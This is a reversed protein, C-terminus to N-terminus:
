IATCTRKYPHSVQYRVNLSYRYKLARYQDGLNYTSVLSEISCVTEVDPTFVKAGILTTKRPVELCISPFEVM